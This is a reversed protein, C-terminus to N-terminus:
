RRRRTTIAYEARQRIHEIEEDQTKNVAILFKIIKLATPDTQTEELKKVEQAITKWLEEKRESTITCFPAGTDMVIGM